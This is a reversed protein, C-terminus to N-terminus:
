RTSPEELKIMNKIMKESGLELIKSTVDIKLELLFKNKTLKKNRTKSEVINDGENVDEQLKFDERM